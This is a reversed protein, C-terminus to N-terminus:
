APLVVLHGLWTCQDFRHSDTNMGTHRRPTLPTRPLTLPLFEPHAYTNSAIYLMSSAGSALTIGFVNKRSREGPNEPTYLSQIPRGHGTLLRTPDREGCYGPYITGRKRGDWVAIVARRKRAKRRNGGGDGGNEGVVFVFKGDGSVM